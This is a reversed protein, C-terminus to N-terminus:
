VVPAVAPLRDQRGFALPFALVSPELTVQLDVPVKRHDRNLRAVESADDREQLPSPTVGPGRRRLSASRAIKAYERARWVAKMLGESSHRVVGQLAHSLEYALVNGLFVPLHVRDEFGAVRNYFVHADADARRGRRRFGDGLSGFAGSGPRRVGRDANGRRRDGATRRAAQRGAHAQKPVGFPAYNTAQLM